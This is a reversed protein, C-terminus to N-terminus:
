IRSQRRQPRWGRTSHFPVHTVAALHSYSSLVPKENYKIVFSDFHLWCLVQVHNAAEDAKNRDPDNHFVLLLRKKFFFFVNVSMFCEDNQRHQWRFDFTTEAPCFGCNWENLSCIIWIIEMLTILQFTMTWKFYVDQYSLYFCVFCSHFRLLRFIKFEVSETKLQLLNKNSSFFVVYSQQASIQTCKWQGFSIFMKPQQRKSKLANYSFQIASVAFIM